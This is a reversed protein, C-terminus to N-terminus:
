ESNLEKIMQISAKNGVIILNFWEFCYTIMIIITIVTTM